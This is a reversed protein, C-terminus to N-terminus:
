AAEFLEIINGSPDQCLIQQGGLGSAIDDLFPVVAEKMAGAQGAIDDVMEIIRARGAPVPQAGDFM